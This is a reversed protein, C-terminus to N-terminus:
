FFALMSREMKKIYKVYTCPHKERTIDCTEDLMVGFFPSGNIDTILSKEIQNYMVM